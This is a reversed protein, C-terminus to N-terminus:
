GECCFQFTLTDSTGDQLTIEFLIEWVGPMFLNIHSITYIGQGEEIVMPDPVTGHDHQPMSPTVVIAAGEATQDNMDVLEISWVNYDVDVQLDPPAPDAQLIRVKVLGDSGLKELGSTYTDRPADGCPDFSESESTPTGECGGLPWILLVLACVNMVWAGAYKLSLCHPKIVCM